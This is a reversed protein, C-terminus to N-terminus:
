RLRVSTGTDASQYAAEIIEVAARGDVGTTEPPRGELISSVFEYAQAQFTRDRADPFQAQDHVLEWAGSPQRAIRLKGYTRCDIVGETGVIEAGCVMDPFGPPPTCQSWWFHAMGGGVFRLQLMGATEVPADTRFQLDAAFVCECECGFWWRLRDVVQCGYGVLLGRGALAPDTHWGGAGKLSGATVLTDRVMMLEGIAGDQILSKTLRGAPWYRHSHAVMLNVGAKRAVGIMRDCALTSVDMPKEVM